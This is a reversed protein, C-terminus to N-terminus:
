PRRFYQANLSKLSGGGGISVDQDVTRQYEALRSHFLSYSDSGCVFWGAVIVLMCKCVLLTNM